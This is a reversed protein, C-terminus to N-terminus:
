LTKAYTGEERIIEPLWLSSETLDDSEPDIWIVRYYGEDTPGGGVVRLVDNYYFAYGHPLVKRKPFQIVNSM